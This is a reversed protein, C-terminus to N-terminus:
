LLTQNELDAEDPAVLPMIWPISCPILAVVCIFVAISFIIPSDAFEIFSRRWPFRGQTFARHIVILIGSTLVMFFSAFSAEGLNFPKLPNQNAQSSRAKLYSLLGLPGFAVKLLSAAPEVRRLMCDRHTWVLTYLYFYVLGSGVLILIQDFTLVM